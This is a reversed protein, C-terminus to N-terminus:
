ILILSPTFAGTNGQVMDFAVAPLDSQLRRKLMNFEAISGNHM